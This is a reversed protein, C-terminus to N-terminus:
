CIETRVWDAPDDLRRAGHENLITLWKDGIVALLVRCRLLEERLREPWLQGGEIDEDDKFVNDAGFHKKLEKAVNDVIAQSDDKRYNIFIMPSNWRRLTPSGPACWSAPNSLAVKRLHFEGIIKM